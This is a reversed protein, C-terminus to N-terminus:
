FMMRFLFCFGVHLGLRLFVNYYCEETDNYSSVHEFCMMVGWVTYNGM